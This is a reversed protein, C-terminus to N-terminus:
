LLSIWRAYLADAVRQLAAVHEPLDALIDERAQVAGGSQGRALEDAYREVWERVLAETM